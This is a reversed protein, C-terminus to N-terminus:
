KKLIKQFGERKRRSPNLNGLLEKEYTPKQIKYFIGIPIKEQNNDYDWENIKKMAEKKSNLNESKLEYVKKDYIEHTDFFTICPQLIDIFSFGKHSIGEQILGKLHEIRTSYGRALFTANSALMIKFPNFPEEISGQPTSRGKFGKPSLATFQGTTLAFNRNNHVLVTIDINRKAAHILHSIGENYCGGDGTFVIVKLNPNGLKIGEASSIPRGHLSSFSNLNLYDIIKSSCGIGSVVVINEKPVGKKILSLITQKFAALIGFNGCGPCWTNECYTDLKQENDM